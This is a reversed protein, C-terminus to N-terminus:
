EEKEKIEHKLYGWHIRKWIRENIFYWIFSAGKIMLALKLSKSLSGTEWKCIAFAIATVVIMYVFTKVISRKHTEAM